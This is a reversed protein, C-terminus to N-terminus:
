ARNGEILRTLRRHATTLTREVEYLETSLTDQQSAAIDDAIGSVRRLLEELATAVSSLEALATVAPLRAAPGARDTRDDTRDDHRTNVGAPLRRAGPVM